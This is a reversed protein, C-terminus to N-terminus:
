SQICCKTRVDKFAKQVKNKPEEHLKITSGGGAKSTQRHAKESTDKLDEDMSRLSSQSPVRKDLAGPDEDLDTDVVDDYELKGNIFNGLDSPNDSLYYQEFLQVFYEFDLVRTNNQFIFHSIINFNKEACM